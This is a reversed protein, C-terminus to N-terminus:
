PNGSLVGAHRAGARAEDAKVRDSGTGLTIATGPALSERRLSASFQRSLGGGPRVSIAQAARTETDLVM